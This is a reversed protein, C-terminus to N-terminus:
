RPMAESIQRLAKDNNVVNIFHELYYAPVDKFRGRRLQCPKGRSNKVTLVREQRRIHQEAWASMVRGHVFIYRPQAVKVMLSLTADWENAMKRQLDEPLKKTVITPFATSYYPCWDLNLLHAQLTSRKDREGWENPPVIVKFLNKFMSHIEQDREYKEFRGRCHEYWQDFSKGRQEANTRASYAPNLSITVAKGPKEIDGSFHCRLADTRLKFKRNGRAVHENFLEALAHDQSEHLTRLHDRIRISKSTM